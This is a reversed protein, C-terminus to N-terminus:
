APNAGAAFVSSADVAFGPLLVSTAQQGPSFEGHVRYQQGELTLVTIRETQPDVIWYEPIGLEAYDARKAEYDREHAEHDPSVIEMVLDAGTLYKPGIRQLHELSIFIIDPERFTKERIHIRLPAFYVTGLGGSIVFSSLLGFLYRVIGQHPPTPMPLVELNGDSLEVLQNTHLALYDGESWGGQAPFLLAVDWAPEAESSPTSHRPMTSM